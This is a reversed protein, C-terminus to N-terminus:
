VNYIGKAILGDIWQVTQQGLSQKYNQNRLKDLNMIDSVMNKLSQEKKFYMM